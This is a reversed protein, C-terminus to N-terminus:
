LFPNTKRGGSVRFAWEKVSEVRKQRAWYKVPLPLDLLERDQESWSRAADIMHRRWGEEGGETVAAQLLRRRWLPRSEDREREVVEYVANRSASNAILAIYQAPLGM